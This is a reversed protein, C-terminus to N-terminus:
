NRDWGVLSRHYEGEEERYVRHRLRYETPTCGETKRFVHSFHASSVFGVTEGIESIEEGTEALLVKAQECRVLNHYVLPTCGRHRKFARLLYNGNVYLSDAMRQLSFKEKYHAEIYESAAQALVEGGTKKKGTDPMTLPQLRENEM